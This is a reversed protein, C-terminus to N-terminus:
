GKRLKLVYRFPIFYFPIRKVALIRFLKLSQQKILKLGYEHIHWEDLNNKAALDWQSEKPELVRRLGCNLLIKKTFIILKENPISLSIIGDDKLVRNMEELILAPELVHEFVETCIIRDFSKDPFPLKEGKALILRAKGCLRKAAREIQVPSIDIGTLIGENIKELIHGAGCGVELVTDTKKIGAENLLVKIRKNEIYRFLRNPHNYFKDLDHKIAHEENWQEFGEPSPRM